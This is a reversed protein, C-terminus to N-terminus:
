IVWKPVQVVSCNDLQDNQSIARPNSFSSEKEFVITLSFEIILNLTQEKEHLAERM